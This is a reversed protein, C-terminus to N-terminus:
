KKGAVVSKEAGTVATGREGPASRRFGPHRRVTPSRERHRHGLDKNERVFSSLM